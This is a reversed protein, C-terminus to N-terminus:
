VGRNGERLYEPYKRALQRKLDWLYRDSIGMRKRAETASFGNDRLIAYQAERGTLPAPSTILKEWDMEYRTPKM